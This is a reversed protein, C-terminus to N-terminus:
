FIINVEYRPFKLIRKTSSFFFLVVERMNYILNREFLIFLLFCAAFVTILIELECNHTINSGAKIEAPQMNREGTRGNEANIETEM